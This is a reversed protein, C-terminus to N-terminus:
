QLYLYNTKYELGLSSAYKEWFRHTGIVTAEKYADSNEIERLETWIRGTMSGPMYLENKLNIYRQKLDNPLENVMENDLKKLCDNYVEFTIPEVPAIKKLMSYEGDPNIAFVQSLGSHNALMLLDELSIPNAYGKSTSPTHSHVAVAQYDSNDLIKKMEETPEVSHVGGVTSGIINDDVILTLSEKPEDWRASEIVNEAATNFTSESYLPKDSTREFTDAKLEPLKLVIKDDNNAKFSIKNIFPLNQILM